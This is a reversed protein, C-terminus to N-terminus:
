EEFKKAREQAEVRDDLEKWEHDVKQAEATIKELAVKLAEILRKHSRISEDLGDIENELYGRMADDDAGALLELNGKRNAEDTYLRNREHNLKGDIERKRAAAERRRRDLNILQQKVEEPSVTTTEM